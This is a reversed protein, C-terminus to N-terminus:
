IGTLLGLILASVALVLVIKVKVLGVLGILMIVLLFLLLLLEYVQLENSNIFIVMTWLTGLSFGHLFVNLVDKGRFQGVNV